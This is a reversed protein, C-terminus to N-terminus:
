KAKALYDAHQKKAREIVRALEEKITVGRKSASNSLRYEAERLAEFETRHQQLSCLAGTEIHSIRFAEQGEYHLAFGEMGCVTVRRLIIAEVEREANPGLLLFTHGCDSM